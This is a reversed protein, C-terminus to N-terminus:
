ACLNPAGETLTVEHWDDHGMTKAKDAMRAGTGEVKKVDYGAKEGAAGKGASADSARSHDVRAQGSGASTAQGSGASRAGKNEKLNWGVTRGVMPTSAGWEKTITIPKHMRKGSAQGSAADRPSKVTHYVAAMAGGDCRVRLYTDDGVGDGDSDADTRVVYLRDASSGDSYTATARMQVKGAEGGAHAAGAALVMGGAITLTIARM